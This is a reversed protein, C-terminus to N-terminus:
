ISRTVLVKEEEGRESADPELPTRASRRSASPRTRGGRMTSVFRVSSSPRAKRVPLSRVMEELHIRSPPPLLSYRWVDVFVCVRCIMVYSVLWKGPDASARILGKSHSVRVSASVSLCIVQAASIIVVAQLDDESHTWEDLCWWKKKTKTESLEAPRFCSTLNAHQCGNLENTAHLQNM